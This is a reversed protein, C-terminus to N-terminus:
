QTSEASATGQYLNFRTGTEFSLRLLELLGATVDPPAEVAKKLLILHQRVRDLLKTYEVLTTYFDNIDKIAQLRQAAPKQLQDLIDNLRDTVSSSYDKTGNDGFSIDQRKLQPAAQAFAENYQFKFVGVAQIDNASTPERTQAAIELVDFYKENIENVLKEIDDNTVRMFIKYLTETDEILFDIIAVVYDYGKLFKDKFEAQSRAKEAARIIPMLASIAPGAVAGFPITSVGMLGALPLANNKLTSLSGQLENVSRGEALGLLIANYDAVVNFANRRATVSAPEALETALIQKVNFDAPFPATSDTDGGALEKKIQESKQIGEAVEDLIENGKTKVTEFTQAYSRFSQVPAQACASLLCFVIIGFSTGLRFNLM